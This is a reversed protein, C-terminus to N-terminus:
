GAPQLLGECAPLSGPRQDTQTPVNTVVLFAQLSSFGGGGHFADRGPSTLNWSNLLFDEATAEECAAVTVVRGEATVTIEQETRNFITMTGRYSAQGPGNLQDLGCTEAAAALISMALLLRLM